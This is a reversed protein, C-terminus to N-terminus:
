YRRGAGQPAVPRRPPWRSRTRKGPDLQLGAPGQQDGVVAEAPRADELEGGPSRPFEM